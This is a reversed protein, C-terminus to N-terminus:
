IIMIAKNMEIKNLPPDTGRKFGYYYLHISSIASNESIAYSEILM